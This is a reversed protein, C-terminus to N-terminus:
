KKDAPKAEKKAPKTAKKTAKSQCKECQCDKGCTCDKEAVDDAVEEGSDFKIFKSAIAGVAAGIAAGLLFKGAGGKNKEAKEPM